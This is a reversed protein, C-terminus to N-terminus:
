WHTWHLANGVAARNVPVGKSVWVMQLVASSNCVATSQLRDISWKTAAHRYQVYTNLYMLIYM